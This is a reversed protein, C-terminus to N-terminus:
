HTHFDPQPHLSGWVCEIRPIGHRTAAKQRLLPEGFAERYIPQDYESLLWRYPAVLLHDVLDRHSIDDPRYASVDCDIYPPDIYATDDPGLDALVEQWPLATIRADTAHLIHQAMKISQEYGKATSGGKKNSRYGGAGYGAGSFTMYPALMSAYPCGRKDDAWRRYYEMRTCQPVRLEHGHDRIAELWSATRLDNLHWESYGLETAALWFVNARGCFPEAYRRGSQPMLDVLTRAMRAKGGPYSYTPPTQKAYNHPRGGKAGNRRAAAQKTPSTSSGGIRGASQAQTESPNEHM